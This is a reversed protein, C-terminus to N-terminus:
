AALAFVSSIIQGPKQFSSRRRITDPLREQYLAIRLAVCVNKAHLINSKFAKNHMIRVLYGSAIATSFLSRSLM